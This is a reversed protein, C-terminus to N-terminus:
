CTEAWESAMMLNLLKWSYSVLINWEMSYILRM